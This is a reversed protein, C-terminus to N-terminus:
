PAVGVPTSFVHIQPGWCSKAPPRNTYELGAGFRLWIWHLFGDAVGAEQATIRVSTQAPRYDAATKLDFRLVTMDEALHPEQEVPSQVVAPGLRDLSSVDLGCAPQSRFSRSWEPGGVLTGRLEIQDPLLVAEPTLLRTQVDGTIALVEEGLLGDDVIEAVFLDARTPLDEGLRVENSPKPIVTIRDALGNRAINERAVEVLLPERECTYVHDAGARAALMALIGSGTGVEFVIMGPRIHRALATQYIENRGPDNIINFHWSPVRKRYSWEAQRRVVPDDPALQRAYEALFRASTDHKTDMQKLINSFRALHRPFGPLMSLKGVHECVDPPLGKLWDEPAISTVRTMHLTNRYENYPM